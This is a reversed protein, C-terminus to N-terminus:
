NRAGHGCRRIHIWSRRERRKIRKPPDSSYGKTETLPQRWQSSGGMADNLLDIAAVVPDLHRLEGRV